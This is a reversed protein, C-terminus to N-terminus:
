LTVGQLPTNDAYDTNGIYSADAWVTVGKEFIGRIIQKFSEPVAASSFYTEQLKWYTFKSMVMLSTPLTSFQMVSYGYRLWYEGIRRMSARDIIKVRTSVGMQNYILNLSEGGFQGNVSPQTLAADRVKANIAAISNAYDGRAAWDSLSKNTDRAFQGNNINAQASSNNANARIQQSQTAANQAIQNGLLSGAGSLGGMAAGAGAGVPGGVLAGSAAGGVVGSGAGLLSQSFSTANSLATQMADAANGIGTQDVVNQLSSSTTDYSAQNGALARQQSWDASQNAFALQNRNSALYNIAQNNVIPITPFNNIAVQMDLYEGGDDGNNIPNGDTGKNYNEPYYIIKQNPPMISARAKLSMNPSQWSEPKLVIPNGSFTTVEVAMYPFTFLKKLGKYRDPIHRNIQVDNRWNFLTTVGVTRPYGGSDPGPFIDRDTLLKAEGDAGYQFGFYFTAIPPVVTISIIGQLVWPKDAMSEMFTRFSASSAFAYANAGTPLHSWSDGTAAKLKPNTVDGPDANLDVSSIVLISYDDYVGSTDEPGMIKQYDVKAIQYESGVDMGEPQTLYDRGYNDFAKTNAIGVHGREIYCNGFTVDYGYTQFVDLQLVLQTHNPAIYIVDLIFYYFDKQVDAGPVPQVPNTARVYNYKLARNIPINIGVPMNPKLFSLNDIVIGSNEKSDIYSNLADKDAFRVVDRYDNNWPVNVLSISTGETWVAYNFDLGFDYTNAPDNIQNM